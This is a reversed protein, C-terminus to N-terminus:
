ELDNGTAPTPLTPYDDATPIRAGTEYQRLTQSSLSKSLFGPISEQQEAQNLEESTAHNTSKLAGALVM